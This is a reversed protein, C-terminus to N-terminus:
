TTMSWRRLRPLSRYLWIIETLKGIDGQTVGVPKVAAIGVPIMKWRAPLLRRIEGRIEEPAMRSVGQPRIEMMKKVAGRRDRGEGRPDAKTVSFGAIIEAFDMSRGSRDRVSRREIEHAAAIIESQKVSEM